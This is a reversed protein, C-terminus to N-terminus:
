PLGTDTLKIYAGNQCKIMGTTTATGSCIVQGPDPFFGLHFEYEYYTFNGLSTTFLSPFPCTHTITNQREPVYVNIWWGTTCKTTFQYIHTYDIPAGAKAFVPVISPETVGSQEESCAAMLVVVVAVLAAPFATRMPEEKATFAIVVGPTGSRRSMPQGM